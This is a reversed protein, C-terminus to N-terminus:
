GRHVEKSDLDVHGIACLEPAWSKGCRIRKWGDPDPGVNALLRRARRVNRDKSDSPALAFSEADHWTPANWRSSACKSVRIKNSHTNIAVVVFAATHWNKPPAAAPRIDTPPGIDLQAVDGLNFRTANGM